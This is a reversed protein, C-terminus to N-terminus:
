FPLPELSPSYRDYRDVVRASGSRWDYLLIKRLRRREQEKKSNDGVEIVRINSKTYGPYKGEEIRDISYSHKSRGKKKLYETEYCLEAFEELTLDFYIDRKAADSRKNQYAAEMPHLRRYERKRCASCHQRGPEHKKMCRPTHCLSPHKKRSM